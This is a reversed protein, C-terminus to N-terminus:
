FVTSKKVQKEFPHEIADVSRSLWQSAIENFTSSEGSTYFEHVPTPTPYLLQKNQLATHLAYATEEAPDILTVKQNFYDFIPASILPYHTCGLVLTDINEFQLPYLSAEILEKSKSTHLENNEILPVLLPCAKAHVNLKPNMQKFTQQYVDSEITRTTAIVGINGTISKQSAAFVGPEIVGIIPITLRKKLEELMLATVTNCAVVLAKINKFMLFDIIDYVYSKIESITKNGYPCRATDGFYILSEQPLARMIEKAVTLGGVGSDIVGIKQELGLGM